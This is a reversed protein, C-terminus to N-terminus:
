CREFVSYLKELSTVHLMDSLITTDTNFNEASKTPILYSKFAPFFVSSVISEIKSANDSFIPLTSYLTALEMCIGTFCSLEDDWDTETALRWIFFPLESSVPNYGNLLDPLGVLNNSQDISIRFYENLMASKNRLLMVLGTCINDKDCGEDLWSGEVTDMANRMMTWTSVPYVLDIQTMNSFKRVALQYFLSRAYRNHNVLMLATEYQRSLLNFFVM